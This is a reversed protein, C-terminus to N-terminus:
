RVNRLSGIIDLRLPQPAQDWCHLWPHAQAAKATMRANQDVVQTPTPTPQNSPPPPNPPQIPNTHKTKHSPTHARESIM